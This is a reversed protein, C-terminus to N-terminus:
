AKVSHRHVLEFSGNGIQAVVPPTNCADIALGYKDTTGQEALLHAHSDAFAM